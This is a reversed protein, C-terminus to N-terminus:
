GKVEQGTFNTKTIRAKCKCIRVEGKQIRNHMVTSISYPKDCAKCVYEWRRQRRVLGKTNLNHKTTAESMTFNAKAAIEHMIRKHQADHYINGRGNKRWKMGNRQYDVCHAVEHVVINIQEAETGRAILNTNLWVTRGNAKGAARGLDKEIVNVVPIGAALCADQVIQKLNIM